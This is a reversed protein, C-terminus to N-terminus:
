KKPIKIFQMTPVLAVMEDFKKEAQKLTLAPYGWDVHEIMQPNKAWATPNKAFELMEEEPLWRNFYNGDSEGERCWTALFRNERKVEVYEILLIDIGKTTIEMKLIKITKPRM